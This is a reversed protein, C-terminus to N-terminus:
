KKKEELDKMTETLADKLPVDNKITGNGDCVLCTLDKEGPTAEDTSTNIKRSVLIEAIEGHSRNLEIQALTGTGKCEPCTVKKVVSYTKNKTEKSATVFQKDEIWIIKDNKLDDIADEHTKYDKESVLQLKTNELYYCENGASYFVTIDEYETNMNTM